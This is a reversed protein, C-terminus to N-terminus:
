PKAHLHWKTIYKGSLFTQCKMCFTANPSLKYPIDFANKWSIYSFSIDAFARFKVGLASILNVASSMRNKMIIIIKWFFIFGPMENSNDAPLCNVHFTLSLKRQFSFVFCLINDAVSRSSNSWSKSHPNHRSSHMGPELLSVVLCM